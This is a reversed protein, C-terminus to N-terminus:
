SIPCHGHLHHINKTASEGDLRRVPVREGQVILTGGERVHQRSQAGRVQLRGRIRSALWQNVLQVTVAMGQDGDAVGTCQRIKRCVVVAMTVLLTCFCLAIVIYGVVTATWTFVHLLIVATSRLPTLLPDLLALVHVDNYRTRLVPWIHLATARYIHLGTYVCKGGVFAMVHFCHALM